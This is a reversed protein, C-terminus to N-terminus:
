GRQSRRFLPIVKALAGEEDPAASPMRDGVDDHLSLYGERQCLTAIAEVLEDKARALASASRRIRLLVDGGALALICVALLSLM